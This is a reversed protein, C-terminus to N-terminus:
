RDVCEVRWRNGYMNSGAEVVRRGDFWRGKVRRLAYGLDRASWKGLDGLVHVAAETFAPHVPDFGGSYTPVRANALKHLEGATSPDPKVELWHLLFDRWGTLEHDQSRMSEAPKLPDPWGAWMLPRRVLRDWTEFSGIPPADVTPHGADHYAKAIVICDAILDARHALVYPVAEREFTRLEPRECGADLNIVLSRRVLDGLLTLNNGTMAIAINTQAMAIKSLGLIRVDVVPSTLVQCLRDANAVPRSVNDINVLPDGKLLCADLRAEFEKGDHGMAVISAMRGTVIAAIVDVLKSKGTGATSASVALMPAAPLVRRFLATLIAALCAARDADSVFPFTSVAEYLREGAREAAPRDMVPLRPLVPPHSLYLGSDEDYGPASVIRGELDM